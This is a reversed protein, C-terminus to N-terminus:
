KQQRLTSKKVVFQLSDDETNIDYVGSLTRAKRLNLYQCVETKEDIIPDYEVREVDAVNYATLNYDSLDFRIHIKADRCENLVSQLKDVLAEQEKTLKLRACLGEHYTKTGDNHVIEYGNFDYVEQANHYTEPIEVDLEIKRQGTGDTGFTTTITHVEEDYYFKDAVGNRYVWSFYRDGEKLVRRNPTAYNIILWFNEYKYLDTLKLQEGKKFQEESVYVQKDSLDGFVFDGTEAEMWTLKTEGNMLDYVITTLHLQRLCKSDEDVIYPARCNVNKFKMESKEM